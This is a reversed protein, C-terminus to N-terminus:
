VRIYFSGLESFLSRCLCRKTLDSKVHSNRQQIQNSNCIVNSMM